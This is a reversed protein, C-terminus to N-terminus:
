QFNEPTKFNTAGFREFSSLEETDGVAAGTGEVSFGSLVVLRKVTVELLYEGVVFNRGVSVLIGTVSFAKGCPTSLVVKLVVKESAPPESSVIFYLTLAGNAKTAKMKNIAIALFLNADKLRLYYIIAFNM